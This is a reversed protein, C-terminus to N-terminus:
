WGAEEGGLCETCKQQVKKCKKADTCRIVEKEETGEASKQLFVRPPPDGSELYPGPPHSVFCVPLIGSM